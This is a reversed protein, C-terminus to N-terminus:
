QQAGPPEIPCEVLRATSDRSSKDALYDRILGREMSRNVLLRHYPRYVYGTRKLFLKGEEWQKVRPACGAVLAHAARLLSEIGFHFERVEFMEYCDDPQMPVRASLIIDGSDIGVDLHHVTIGVLEPKDELLMFLNCNGGRSYPSLGTHLNVFGLRTNPALSLIQQRLLNTGNVLVLEPELRALFDQAEPANIDPVRVLPLGDPPKPPEGARWILERELQRSRALYGPLLARATLYEWLAQPSRYRSLRDRLSGKPNTAAYRVAGVLDFEESVRQLLYDQFKGECCLVVVRTSQSAKLLCPLSM